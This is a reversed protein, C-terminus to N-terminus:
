DEYRDELAGTIEVAAKRSVGSSKMGEMGAKMVAM